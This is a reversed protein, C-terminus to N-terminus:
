VAEAVPRLIASLLDQLGIEPVEQKAVTQRCIVAKDSDGPLGVVVLEPYELFLHSCVGPMEGSEPWTQIVVDAKTDGVAILIDFSDLSQEMVEVDGQNELRERLVDRLLPSEVALLIKTNTM